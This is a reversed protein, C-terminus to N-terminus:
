TPGQSGSGTTSSSGASAVAVASLTENASSVTSSLREGSSRVTNM